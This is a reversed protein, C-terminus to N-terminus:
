GEPYGAPIGEAVDVAGTQDRPCWYTTRGGVVGRALPSGCRPCYGNRRARAFQGSGSGAQPLLAARISARLSVRLRDLADLDLSSAPARPDIRARWLAEDALLNGVGAVASQDLLRAKVAARSSGVLRRFADRGVTAADPGLRTRAGDLLARGLRRKDRLAIRTGDEFEIAFRDWGRPAEPEDVRFSGSMGLHLSLDVGVDTELWLQKGRRHAATVTAGRLVADIEGAGHPRCVYPDHDDVRAITRGVASRELV